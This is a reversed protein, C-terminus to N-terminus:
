KKKKANKIMLKITEKMRSDERLTRKTKRQMATKRRKKEREIEKKNLRLFINPKVCNM